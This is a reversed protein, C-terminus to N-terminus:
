IYGELDALIIALLSGMKMKEIEVSGSLCSLM